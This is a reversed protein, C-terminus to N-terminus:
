DFIEYLNKGPSNSESLRLVLEESCAELNPTKPCSKNVKVKEERKKNKINQEEIMNDIASINCGFSDEFM